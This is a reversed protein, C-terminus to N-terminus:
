PYTDGQKLNEHVSLEMWAEALHIWATATETTLVQRSLGLQAADLANRAQVLADGPFPPRATM